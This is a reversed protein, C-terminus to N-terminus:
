LGIRLSTIHNFYKSPYFVAMLGQLILWFSLKSCSKIGLKFFLRCLPMRYKPPFQGRTKEIILSSIARIQLQKNEGNVKSILVRWLRLLREWRIEDTARSIISNSRTNYYYTNGLVFSASQIYKSIEFNWVEDEHILREVFYLGNQLVFARSIMKNWATMGFVYRKLMSLQLWERDSSYHPLKKQTYDLWEYGDSNTDTGAFVIQADPNEEICHVMKEICDPVIMDDSDLFYLYDGQAADIGTNRAASLGRNNEHHLIRFTLSSLNSTLTGDETETYGEKALVREVIEMSNDQGCDDVIICEVGETMTQNMVSQICQEVYPAVNYVPIIFSVITPM